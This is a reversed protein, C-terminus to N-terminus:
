TSFYKLASLQLLIALLLSYICVLYQTIQPSTQVTSPHFALILKAADAAAYFVCSVHNDHMHLVQLLPASAPQLM